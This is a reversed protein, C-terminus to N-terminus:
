RLFRKERNTSSIAPISALVRLDLFEGLEDPSRFGAGLSDVAYASGTGLAGAALFGGILLWGLHLAPLAPVTAAEAISVNVIRKSDLADSIRAAERKRQYLLYNDEATKVDRVIDAREAGKRDLDLTAKRYVEVTRATAAAESETAARDAEAKALETEIWDQAPPRDTTKEELPSQQAAAIAKQTEAIQETLEAVPPYSDAYKTILDSRKLELSLLTGQLQALLEANGSTRV